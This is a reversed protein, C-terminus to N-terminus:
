SDLSLFRSNTKFVSFSSLRTLYLYVTITNTFFFTPYAQATKNKHTKPYSSLWLVQRFLHCTNSAPLCFNNTLLTHKLLKTKTYSKTLIYGSYRGLHCTNSAPLCFQEQANFSANSKDNTRSISHPFRQLLSPWHLSCQSLSFYRQIASM